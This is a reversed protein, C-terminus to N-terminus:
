PKEYIFGLKEEVSKPLNPLRSRSIFFTTLQTFDQFVRHQETASKLYSSGSSGGTGIKTGLMRGAMLAHKYRWNTLNEDLNLLETILRFPAQFIPQDRYLQIFLGAHLAEFSLRWTQGDEYKKRDFIEDFQALAQEIQQLNRKRGEADLLGNNEVIVRDEAFADRVAKQYLSWFDFGDIKLFPTRALWQNVYDFLSPNMESKKIEEIQEPKLSEEYPKNNYTLRNQKKLGLKNEILRFQLSQFGSAPYLFERFDLFDLPTMTELIPIQEIILRFIQNIRSLRANILGMQKEQLRGSSFLDLISDLEILIHKFWIEYAQHVTIFLNEDHARQGYQESRLRHPTLISELDLYDHYHIPPAKM